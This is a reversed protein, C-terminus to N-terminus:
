KGPLNENPSNRQFLPYTQKTQWEQSDNTAPRITFSPNDPVTASNPFNNFVVALRMTAANSTYYTELAAENAFGMSTVALSFM